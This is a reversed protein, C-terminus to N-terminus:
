GAGDWGASGPDSVIDGGSGDTGAVIPAASTNPLRLRGDAVADGKATRQIPQEGFLGINTLDPPIRRCWFAKHRAPPIGRNWCENTGPEDVGLEPGELHRGEDRSSGIGGFIEQCEWAQHLVTGEARHCLPCMPDVPYGAAARRAPPWGAGQVIM